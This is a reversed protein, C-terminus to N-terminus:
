ELILLLVDEDDIEIARRILEERIREDHGYFATPLKDELLEVAVRKEFESDVEIEDESSEPELLGIELRCKRLLRERDDDCTGEWWCAPGGGRGVVVPNPWYTGFYHPNAWYDHSFM